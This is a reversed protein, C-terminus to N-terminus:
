TTIISNDHYSRSLITTAWLTDKWEYIFRTNKFINQIIYKSSTMFVTKPGPFWTKPLVLDDLLSKQLM